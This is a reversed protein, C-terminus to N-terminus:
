CARSRVESARKTPNRAVLRFDVEDEGSTIVHDVVVGDALTSRLRLRAGEGDSELLETTHRIVTENWNREHGGPRCFAELYMVTLSGSPFPGSITLYEREWHLKLRAGPEGAALPICVALVAWFVAVWRMGARGCVREYMVAEWTQGYAFGVSGRSKITVCAFSRVVHM